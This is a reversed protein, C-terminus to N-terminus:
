QHLTISTNPTVPSASVSLQSPSANSSVSPQNPSSNSSVFPQNPSANSTIPLFSSSGPISVFTSPPILSVPLTLPLDNIANIKSPLHSSAQDKVQFNQEDFVV